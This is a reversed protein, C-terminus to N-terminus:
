RETTGESGVLPEDSDTVTVGRTEFRDFIARAREVEAATDCRVSVVVGVPGGADNAPTAEYEPVFSGIGAGLAAGLGAGVAAFALADVLLPGGLLPAFWAVGLAGRGVIVGFAAGLFGGTAAGLSAGEPVKTRREIEYRPTRPPPVVVSVADPAVDEDHLAAVMREAVGFDGALCVVSTTM